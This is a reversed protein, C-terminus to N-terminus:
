AAQRRQAAVEDAKRQAIVAMREIETGMLVAEHPLMSRGNVVVRGVEAQIVVRGAETVITSQPLRRPAQAQKLEHLM